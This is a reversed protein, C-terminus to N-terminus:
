AWGFEKIDLHWESGDTVRLDRGNNEYRIKGLDVTTPIINLFIDGANLSIIRTRLGAKKRFVNEKPDEIVM